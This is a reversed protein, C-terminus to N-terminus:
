AIEGPKADVQFNSKSERSDNSSDSSDPSALM